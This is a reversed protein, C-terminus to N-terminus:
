HFSQKQLALLTTSSHLTLVGATHYGRYASVSKVDQVNVASQLSSLSDKIEYLSKGTIRKFEELSETAVSHSQRADTRFHHANNAPSAARSVWLIVLDLMLQLTNHFTNLRSFLKDFDGERSQKRLQMRFSEFKSVIRSGSDSKERGIIYKVLQELDEVIRRCDQLSSSINQWLKAAQTPVTADHSCSVQVDEYSAKITENVSKLSKLERSLASIEDGIQAAGAHVDRLYAGFRTCVDILGVTGVIISFPDM